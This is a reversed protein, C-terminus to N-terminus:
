ATDPVNCGPALSFMAYRVLVSLLDINSVDKRYELMYLRPLICDVEYQLVFHLTKIDLSLM